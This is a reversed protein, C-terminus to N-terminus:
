PFLLFTDKSNISFMGYGQIIGDQDVFSNYVNIPENGFIAGGESENQQMRTKHYKYFDFGVSYLCIKLSDIKPESDQISRYFYVDEYSLEITKTQGNFLHDDFLAKKSFDEYFESTGDSLSPDSSTFPLSESENILEGDFEYSFYSVIKLMYYNTQIPDDFEFQIISRQGENIDIKSYNAAKIYVVQPASVYKSKLSTHSPHEVELKYNSSSQAIHESQYFSSSDIYKLTDTIIDDVYLVVIADSYFEFDSNSLPDLSHSIYARFQKGVENSSNLVLKSEHNPLEIEIVTDICSTILFTFLLFICHKM